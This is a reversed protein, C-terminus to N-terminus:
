HLSLEYEVMHEQCEGLAANTVCVDLWIDMVDLIFIAYIFVDTISM